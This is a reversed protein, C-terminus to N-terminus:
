HPGPWTTVTVGSEQRTWAWAPDMQCSLVEEDLAHRPNSGVPQEAAPPPLPSERPHGSSSPPFSLLPDRFLHFGDITKEEERRHGVARDKGVGGGKRTLLSVGDLFTEADTLLEEVLITLATGPYPHRDPGDLVTIVFSAMEVLITLATGPYPHRDPGDLVAVVFSAMKLHDAFLWEQMARTLLSIGDLFTEADTLLEWSVKHPIAEPCARLLLRELTRVASRLSRLGVWSAPGDLEAGSLREGPDGFLFARPMIMDATQTM